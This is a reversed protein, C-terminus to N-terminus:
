EFNEITFNNRMVTKRCTNQAMKNREASKKASANKTPNGVIVSLGCFNASDNVMPLRMNIHEKAIKFPGLSCMILMSCRSRSYKVVIYTPDINKVSYKVNENPPIRPYAM